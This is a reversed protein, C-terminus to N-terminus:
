PTVTKAITVTVTGVNTLSSLATGNGATPNGGLTLITSGSPASAVATDVATALDVSAASFTGTVWSYGELETYTFSATIPINSHNKVTVKDSVGANSKAWVYDYEHNETDWTETLSYELNGWEVTVNFIDGSTTYTIKANASDTGGSAEIPSAASVPMITVFCMACVALIGFLKKM